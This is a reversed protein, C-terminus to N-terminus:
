DSRVKTEGENMWWSATHHHIGYADPYTNGQNKAHIKKFPEMWHVPYFINPPFITLESKDVMETIWFPGLRASANGDEKENMENIQLPVNDILRKFIPHKPVAGVIGMLIWKNKGYINEEEVSESAFCEIGDLLPEINKFCEFDADIYVGGRHYLLEFRLIDSRESYTLAEDFEKQNTLLPVNEDTWTYIKWDPHRKKWTELYYKYDEPLPKGGLWIHHFIRPILLKEPLKSKQYERIKDWEGNTFGEWQKDKPTLWSGSWHHNAYAEPHEESLNIESSYGVPIPYFFRRHLLTIDDSNLTKTWFVPGVTINAPYEKYKERNEPLADILKKLAPHGKVSGFIADTLVGEVECGVFCELDKILPEINKFCEMDTDLYIGGCNYVVEIRAISSREAYTNSVDYDKQNILEPLNEDTWIIFEWDPHRKKWTELYYQYEEPLPGPDSKGDLSTWIIHFIKPIKM